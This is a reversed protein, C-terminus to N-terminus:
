KNAEHRTAFEARVAEDSAINGSALWEQGVIDAMDLRMYPKVQLMGTILAMFEESYFGAPKLNM